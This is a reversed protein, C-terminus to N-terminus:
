ARCREALEDSPINSHFAQTGKLMEAQFFDGKSLRVPRIDVKRYEAGAKPNSAVIRLINANDTLEKIM